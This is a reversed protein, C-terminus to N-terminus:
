MKKTIEFDKRIKQTKKFREKMIASDGDHFETMKVNDQDVKKLNIKAREQESERIVDKILPVIKDDIYNNFALEVMKNVTNVLLDDPMDRIGKCLLFNSLNKESVYWRLGVKVAPIKGKKLYDRVGLKTLPLIKTLDEVTFFRLKGMVKSPMVKKNEM